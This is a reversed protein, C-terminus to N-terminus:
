YVIGMTSMVISEYTQNSYRPVYSAKNSDVIAITRKSDDYGYAAIYHYLGSGNRYYTIVDNRNAAINLDLLVNYNNSKDITMQIKSALLNAQPLAWSSTWLAEYYNGGGTYKNLVTSWKQADFNTGNVTTGLERALTEQTTENTIGKARLYGEIINQAAAPGCYYGNIQGNYGTKNYKSSGAVRAVAKNQQLNENLNIKGSNDKIQQLNSTGYIEVLKKADEIQVPPTTSALVPKAIGGLTLTAFIAALSIIKKNIM